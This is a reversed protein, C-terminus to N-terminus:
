AHVPKRSIFESLEDILGEDSRLEGTFSVTHLPVGVLHLVRDMNAEREDIFREWRNDYSRWKNMSALVLEKPRHTRIILRPAIEMWRELAIGSLHPSKVGVRGDCESHIRGFEEIWERATDKREVNKKQFPFGALDKTFHRMAGDEFSGIPQAASAGKFEHGMCIDFSTHLIRSVTSTGSRGTGVVVVDPTRM